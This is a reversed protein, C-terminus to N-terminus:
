ISSKDKGIVLLLFLVHRCMRVKFLTKGFNYWSIQFLLFFFLHMGWIQCHHACRNPDFDNECEARGCQDHLAAVWISELETFGWCVYSEEWEMEEISGCWWIKLCFIHLYSFDSFHIKYNQLKIYHNVSKPLECGSPKWKYKLYLKDTRGYKVCDFEPRIFPCTTSDYLPYSPDIVWNGTFLNCDATADASARLVSYSFFLLLLSEFGIGM